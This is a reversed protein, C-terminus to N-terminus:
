AARRQGTQARPRRTRLRQPERRGAAYLPHKRWRRLVHLELALMITGPRRRRYRTKQIMRFSRNGREVHNNTRDLNEYALFVIMKEFEGRRVRHIARKLQPVEMYDAKKALRDRRRRATEKTIGKEFLGHVEDVFEKLTEFRADIELMRRWDARDDETFRDRRKVILHLHDRVFKRRDDKKRKRGRKKPRGRRYKRPKPLRSLIARAAQLVDKNVNALVHFICLQHEVDKWREVLSEKYLASGDTIVVVPVFGMAKIGDLFAGIAGSGCSKVVDWSITADLLPDTAFLVHRKRGEHVEDICM